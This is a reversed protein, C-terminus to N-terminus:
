LSKFRQAYFLMERNDEQAQSIICLVLLTILNM